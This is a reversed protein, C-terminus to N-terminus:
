ICRVANDISYRWAIAALSLISMIVGGAVVWPLGLIAIVYGCGLSALTTGLNVATLFLGNVFDPAEPASTYVWYQTVNANIGAAIGWMVICMASLWVSTTSVYMGIYISGVAIPLIWVTQKSRKVLLHGAWLSGVINMVGYIFLLVSGVLPSVQIVISIYEAAYGFVGYIAGNMCIAGVISIWLVPKALIKLQSGYSLPATVAMSPVKLAILLVAIANIAAFFYYASELSIQTALFNSIPVGLVMGASVGVTIYAVAKPSEESDVAGAAISFALSCFVPHLLAPLIRLVLVIYFNDIWPTVATCLFFVSVVLLMIHKRNYRSLLLPLVPGALAVGLAFGSILLGSETISIHFVEAVQPLIGIVGMETNLIGFVGFALILLLTKTQRQIAM